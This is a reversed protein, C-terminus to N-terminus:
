DNEQRPTSGEPIGSILLRFAGCLPVTELAVRKSLCHTINLTMSAGNWLGLAIHKCQTIYWKVMLCLIVDCFYIPLQVVAMVYFNHTPTPVAVVTQNWAKICVWTEQLKQVDNNPSILLNELFDLPLWVIEVCWLHLICGSCVSALPFTSMFNICDKLILSKFLSNFVTSKTYYM